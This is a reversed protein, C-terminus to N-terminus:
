KEGNYLAIIHNVDRRVAEIAESVASGFSNWSYWINYEGKDSEKLYVHNYTGAPCRIVVHPAKRDRSYTAPVDVSVTVNRASYVTKM